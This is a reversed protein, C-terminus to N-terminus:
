GKRAARQLTQIVLSVNKERSFYELAYQRGQEGLRHLESVPLQMVESMQYALLEPQDPLVTWGCAAQELVTDIDTKSHTLALVPRAALMYSILKSPVSSLAQKGRTPLILVDAAKLVASTEETPWPSYFAVRGMGTQEALQKCEALQSGDGAILLRVPLESSIQGIAKIVTQVGAAVGVNGGYVFVFDKEGFGHQKRIARHYSQEIEGVEDAWNPIISMRQAPVHREQRYIQAFRESITIVIQSQHAIWTDLARLMRVLWNHESTREQSLLSEPYVDQVSIVLPIHRLCTVLVMLGTAFLPWTNAYIVDPRSTFLLACASTTGFTVNELFRSILTSRHSFTGWCRLVPIGSHRDHHFLYRRYGPYLKGGPRHPLGTIVLVTHGAQQLGCAVDASTRASVVPEPPYVCSIITVKM